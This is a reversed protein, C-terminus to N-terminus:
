LGGGGASAEIEKGKVRRHVREGKVPESLGFIQAPAVQADTKVSKSKRRYPGWLFPPRGPKSYGAAARPFAYEPLNKPDFVSSDFSGEPVVFTMHRRDPPAEEPQDVVAGDRHPPPFKESKSKVNMQAMLRRRDINTQLEANAEPAPRARRRNQPRPPKKSGGGKEKNDSRKGRSQEERLKVDLEKTPPYQALSWPECALPSVRFFESDLASTATGRDAPDLSLLTEILSLSHPPFDKFTEAISSKYSQQTSFMATRPLRLKRWYDGPPSGCLKFIRHLQEVETRGPLIPRGSLLEAMICGASWLDVDFGYSTAGLLLEPPRYWLTVVRSTLPRRDGPHRRLALGFDAIKLVGANNVLLNAGKIDRHMVGHSHCHELGQLLQKMFCKIQPLSFSLDPSCLLGSLDHEMYEFILYISSSVRSIILGELKIVNPHDLRRLLAIERAMFKVSEPEVSDMRVKKLAVMKGTELDRAKYVNSYTGQGIKSLKQFSDARRPAWGQIAEGAVETLWAPWRPCSGPSPPVYPPIVSRRHEPPATRGGAPKGAAATEKSTGGEEDGDRTPPKGCVCGM